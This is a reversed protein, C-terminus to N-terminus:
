VLALDEARVVRTPKNLLTEAEKLVKAQLELVTEVSDGGVFVPSSSKSRLGAYLANMADKGAELKRMESNWEGADIHGVYEDYEADWELCTKYLVDAILRPIDGASPQYIMQIQVAGPGEGVFRFGVQGHGLNPSSQPGDSSAAGLAIVDADYTTYIVRGHKLPVNVTQQRIELPEPEGSFTGKNAEQARDYAAQLQYWTSAGCGFLRDLRIALAFTIASEGRIVSSLEEPGVGLKQATEVVDMGLPEMCDRLISRGPHPPYKMPM